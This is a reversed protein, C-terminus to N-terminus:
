IPCRGGHIRYTIPKCFVVTTTSTDDSSWSYAINSGMRGSIQTYLEGNQGIQNFYAMFYVFTHPDFVTMNGSLEAHRKSHKTRAHILASQDVELTFPFDQALGPSASETHFFIPKGFHNILRLSSGGSVAYVPLIFTFSVLLLMIIKKM